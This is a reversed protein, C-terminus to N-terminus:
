QPGRRVAGPHVHEARAGHEPLEEAALREELAAGLRVLQRQLEFEEALTARAEPDAGYFLCVQNYYRQMDLGHTGWYAPNEDEQAALEFSLATLATVSQAADEEWFADLLVVSLIDAADEERGLVPSDTLHILAHGFEHYLTSIVNATVFDQAGDAHAPALPVSLALALVFPRFM